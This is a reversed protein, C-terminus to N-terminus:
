VAPGRADLGYYVKAADELDFFERCVRSDLVNQLREVSRLAKMVALNERSARTGVNIVHSQMLTRRFEALRKGLERHQDLTMARLQTIM